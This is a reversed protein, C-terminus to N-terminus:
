VQRGRQMNYIREVDSITKSDKVGLDYRINILRPFRLAYGSSYSTSKQIEEYAIEVIIKPKITVNKGKTDTILPKLLKTLEDFSIGLEDKEKIGTGVKGIALIEKKNDRLCSLEFSSLWKARKGEGWEAGTIILDLTELIPKVKVGYGVRSGPKYIGELNKMMIGENGKKLAEKYFKEAEKIDSTIIQKAPELREKVPKIISEIIKRREKFPKSILSEKNYAIIDFVNLMIPVKKVIEEIDYKRKIRQSIDQFPLWKKSKPDIGIVESDLIYNDGRVNNKILEVIDPFQKSVNELRRTFLKIQGNSKHVLVRFGDYKFELVAPKGVADFGEKIGKVKQYLMVNIPTGVVLKISDLDKINEIVVSFDSTLDYAHKVKNVCENFEERNNVDVKNKKEDYIIGLEKDFFAWVIADRFTGESVGVRLEELITRVIYKAGVPSASTLLESLLGVKKSVTGEGEMDALKRINDFVKRTTLTSSHLTTQEKKSCLKEAVEGLDGIKAWLKDINDAGKGSVNSLAKIILRSSMGIKQEEWPSYVNGQILNVLHNVESTKTKKLFKSLIFTKELRKSTSGLKEYLEALELYDM